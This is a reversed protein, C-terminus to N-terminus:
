WDFTAVARKKVWRIRGCDEDSNAAMMAPPREIVSMSSCASQNAVPIRYSSQVELITEVLLADAAVVDNIVQSQGLFTHGVAVPASSSMSTNPSALPLARIATPM